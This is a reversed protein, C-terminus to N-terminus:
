PKWRRRSVGLDPMLTLELVALGVFVLATVLRPHTLIWAGMRNLLDKM